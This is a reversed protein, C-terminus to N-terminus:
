DLGSLAKIGRGCLKKTEVRCSLGGCPLHSFVRECAIMSELNNGSLLKCNFFNKLDLGKQVSLRTQCLSIVGQVNM